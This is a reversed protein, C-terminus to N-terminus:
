LSEKNLVKQYVKLYSEVMTAAGFKEEVRQRCKARDIQQIDRMRKVMEEVNNVLFGTEGETVIEPAAGQAFAIVPTGCAFAETMVLGFPENWKIPDLLALAGGMYQNKQQDNMEGMYVIQEGDILPAVEEEYYRRDEAELTDVKGGLILKFGAARAALIAEKVGKDPNFKGIWFFYDAPQARFKYPALDIGNYVTAVWNLNEGGQRQSNSISVYNLDRYKQFVLHRDQRNQSLPYPFHFTFVVKDKIPKALPLSLYDSGKNLHVHIIDFEDARDFASTIHLLPYMVNRWPIGDRFLPRPYVASLKAKTKSTGAAFLTVDHGREVLGETLYSVVRETGGYLPPPTSEWLSGVQAIRLMCARILHM